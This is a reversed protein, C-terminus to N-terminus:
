IGNRSGKGSLWGPNVFLYQFGLWFFPATVLAWFLQLLIIRLSHATFFRPTEASLVAVSFLINEFLVGLVVLLSFLLHERISIWRPAGRCAIFIWLYTTLYIGIPAGSLMDMALGGAALVPLGDGLPKYLSLYVIFPILFDYFRGVVPLYPLISTQLIVLFVVLVLYFLYRIM